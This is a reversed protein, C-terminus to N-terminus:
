LRRAVQARVARAGVATRGAAGATDATTGTACASGGSRHVAAASRAGAAASEQRVGVRGRQGGSPRSRLDQLIADHDPERSTARVSDLSRALTLARDHM